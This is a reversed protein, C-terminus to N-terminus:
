ILYRQSPQIGIGDVEHIKVRERGGTREERIVRSRWLEIFMAIGKVDAHIGVNAILILDEEPEAVHVIGLEDGAQEGTDRVTASELLAESRLQGAPRGRSSACM